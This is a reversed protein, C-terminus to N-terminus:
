QTSLKLALYHLHIFSCCITVINGIACKIHVTRFAKQVKQYQRSQIGEYAEQHGIEQGNGLSQELEHKTRMLKLLSPTLYLYITMEIVVSTSLAALQIIIWRTEDDRKNIKAFTVLTTSSLLANIIFYKPFLIEQCMGFTHRPLAFYLALGSVFTMWLQAGFHAAFSRIYVLTTLQNSQRERKKHLEPWMCYSITLVFLISAVHAPQTTRTM